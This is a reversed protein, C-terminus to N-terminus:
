GTKDIFYPAVVIMGADNTGSGQKGTLGKYKVVIDVM